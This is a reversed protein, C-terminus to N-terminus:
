EGQKQEGEHWTARIIDNDDIVVSVDCETDECVNILQILADSPIGFTERLEQATITRAKAMHEIEWDVVVFSVFIAISPLLGLMAGILLPHKVGAEGSSAGV